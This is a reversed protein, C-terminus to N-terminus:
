PPSPFGATAKVKINGKQDSRRSNMKKRDKFLSVFAALPWVHTTAM